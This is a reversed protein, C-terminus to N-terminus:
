SSLYESVEVLQHDPSSQACHRLIPIHGSGIIVLIRDDPSETIRQLNAFIRLNRSYWACVYDVGPYDQGVGIKFPGTLYGAHSDRLSRESNMDLFSDRLSRTMKAADGSRGGADLDHLWQEIIGDQGHAAAYTRLAEFPDPLKDFDESTHTKAFIEVDIPPDYYRGWVDVCHLTQLGLRHALKFGLQHVENPTLTFTGACYQRYQTDIVAQEDAGCEVAIKNPRFRALLDIVHDLEAQRQPSLIGIDHEPIYRDHGGDKFHFTGLLLLQAKAM